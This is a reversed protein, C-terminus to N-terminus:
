IFPFIYCERGKMPEASQEASLLAYTITKKHTKYNIIIFLLRIRLLAIKLPVKSKMRMKERRKREMCVLKYANLPQRDHFVYVSKMWRIIM